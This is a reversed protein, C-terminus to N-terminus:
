EFKSKPVFLRTFLNEKAGSFYTDMNRSSSILYKNVTDAPFAALTIIGLSDGEIKLTFEPQMVHKSDDVFSSSRMNAISNLYTTIKSTDTAYTGEVMWKNDSRMLTFSSDAPYSFTLKTWKNRDSEIITKDRFMNAQRNFLMSLYGTASYVKKEGKIRIYTSPTRSTQNYAFKGIVFDAAVDNGEFVQVRVGASDTIEFDKWKDEGTAAVRDARIRKLESIMQEIYKIDAPYTKGDFNMKWSGGDKTLRIEKKETAKPAFVITSVKASDLAVLESRFSSEGKKLYFSVIVIVLLVVFVIILTRPKM